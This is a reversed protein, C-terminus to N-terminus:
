RNEDVHPAPAADQRVASGPRYQEPYLYRPDDMHLLEDSFRYFATAPLTITDAVATIAL